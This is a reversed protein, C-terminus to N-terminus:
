LAQVTLVRNFFRGTCASAAYKATFVYDLGPALDEVLLVRTLDGGLDELDGQVSLCASASAAVSTSGAIDVGMQAIASGPTAIVSTIAISASLTVLCRGSPGIRVGSVIPGFTDLDAFTGSATTESSAIRDAYTNASAVSVATEAQVSGPLVFQGVVAWTSAGGMSSAVTQIGVVDGPEFTTAEALGLVPLDVFDVGSVRVVNSLTIKDFSVIVGQRSSVPQAPQRQPVFLTALDDMM